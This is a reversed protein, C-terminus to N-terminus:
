AIVLIFNMLFLSGLFHDFIHVKLMHLAYLYQLTLM